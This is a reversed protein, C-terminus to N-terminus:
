IGARYRDGAGAEFNIIGPNKNLRSGM